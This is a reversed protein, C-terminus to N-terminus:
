IGKDLDGGEEWKSAHKRTHPSDDDDNDDDDDVGGGRAPGRSRSFFICGFLFTPATHADSVCRHRLMM